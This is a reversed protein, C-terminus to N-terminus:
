LRSMHNIILKLKPSFHIFLVSVTYWFPFYDVRILGMVSFKHVEESTESVTYKWFCRGYIVKFLLGTLFEIAFIALTIPIAKFWISWGIYENIAELIMGGFGYVFFIPLNTKAPADWRRYFLSKGGTFIVEILLGLFGFATLRQLGEFFWELNSM